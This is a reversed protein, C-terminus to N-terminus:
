NKVTNIEYDINIQQNYEDNWLAAVIFYIDVILIIAFFAMAVCEVFYYPYLPLHLMGTATATKISITAQVYAAYAAYFTVGISLVSTVFLSLLRLTRPFREILIPVNIHAKKSQAYAFSAFVSCLMLREVIEYAGLIPSNVVKTLLVDVVTLLLIIAYGVISIVSVVSSAKYM